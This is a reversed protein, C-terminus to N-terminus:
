GMLDEFTNSIEEIANFINNIVLPFQHNILFKLIQFLLFFIHFLVM